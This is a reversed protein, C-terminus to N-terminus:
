NKNTVWEEAHHDSPLVLPKIPQKNMLKIIEKLEIPNMNNGDMGVDMAKGDMLRQYPLLHVHGFLHPVGRAMSDWSAIPFHSLVFKDYVNEIQGMSALTRLERKVELMTYYEYVGTFISRINQRNNVIHHDHNGTILYINKCVIRDRFIKINNFGGFSWDGLCILIDDQGVVANINNIITDNMKELTPFDRVNSPIKGDKTRWNTTGKCLNSHGYHPDSIFWLYQDKNLILKLM